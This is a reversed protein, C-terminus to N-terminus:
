RPRTRSVNEMAGVAFNPIAIQDSKPLPYPVGFFEEYRNLSDVAVKLAVGTQDIKDVATWVRVPVGRSTVSNVNVFDCVVYAVLYTSMRLSTQFQVRQWGNPLIVPASGPMNSLLVYEAKAILAISFNAKFAPEDFCPFARRADVPEFQTSAIMRTEGSLTKYTSTYFGALGDLLAGKFQMSLKASTGAAITNPLSVLFLDYQGVYDASTPEITQVVGGAADLVKLMAGSITLELAHFFVQNTDEKFMLDMEMTGSFEASSLSANLEMTYLTPIVTQPLRLPYQVANNGSDSSKKAVTVIVVILIIVLVVSVGVQIARVTGKNKPNKWWSRKGSGTLSDRLRSSEDDMGSFGDDTARAPGAHAEARLPENEM